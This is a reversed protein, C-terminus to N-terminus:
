PNPNPPCPPVSVDRLLRNPLLQHDLRDITQVLMEVAQRVQYGLQDTVEQQNLMSEAFLRELTNSEAVGYFRHMELLTRFSRLTIPEELWFSAYWSIFSTTEQPPAHVLMWHNGNTVLGLPISCSRLLEMMRTAPSAKWRGGALPKELSQTVPLVHILLRAPENRSARRIILDPRIIERQEEVAAKLTEPIAAGEEIIDAPYGLVETLVFRVWARHIAPDPAIEQQNDTWTDYAQRM